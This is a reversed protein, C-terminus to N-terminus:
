TFVGSHLRVRTSVLAASLREAARVMQRTMLQDVASVFREGAGHLSAGVSEGGVGVPLAVNDLAVFRVFVDASVFVAAEFEPLVLQELEVQTFLM